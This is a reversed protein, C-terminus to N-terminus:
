ARVGLINLYSGAVLGNTTYVTLTVKAIKKNTEITQYDGNAPYVINFYSGQNGNGAYIEYVGGVTPKQTFTMSSYYNQEPAYTNANCKNEIRGISDVNKDTAVYLVSGGDQGSPTKIHIKIASFNYPTGDPEQTREISKVGGENIRITEILEYEGEDVTLKDGDMKLGKGVQKESILKSANEDDQGTGGVYVNGAYWANGGWDVTHANSYTEVSTDGTNDLNTIKGNGVIHAYKGDADPINARGQAHTGPNNVYARTHLGEAHAGKSNAQTSIGEAHAAIATAQTNNGEAHAYWHTAKTYGGESHASNSTAETGTGEAHSAIGKAYSADGEAHSEFGSATAFGEAHANEATASGRGFSSSNKGYERGMLPNMVIYGTGSPNVKDMKNEHTKVADDATAQAQEAASNVKEINKFITSSLSKLVSKLHELSIVSM